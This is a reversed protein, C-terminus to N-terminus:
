VRPPRFPPATSRTFRSTALHVPDVIRLPSAPAPVIAPCTLATGHQHTCHDASTGHQHQSTSGPDAAERLHGADRDIEHLIALAESEHHVAGDRLEGRLAEVSSACFMVLSTLAVFRRLMMRGLIAFLALLRLESIVLPPEGSGVAGPLEEVPAITSM